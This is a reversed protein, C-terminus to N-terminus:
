REAQQPAGEAAPKANDAKPQDALFHSVPKFSSDLLLTTRHKLTEKLAELERLFIALEQAQEDQAFVEYYQAADAIGEARVQGARVDAFALITQRAKDADSRIAEAIAKGSAEANQARALREEKMRAFVKETVPEPLLMRRVGVQVVEVGRQDRDLQEQMQSAIQREVESLQLQAPDLNVLRDFTHRGVVSARSSRLMALLVDSAQQRSEHARHFELPDSIRWALYSNIIVSYGDATQQEELQDELLQVQTSYHYVQQIPPPLRFNFGPETLVGSQDNVRGFTAVVAAENYRVVFTFMYAILVGGILLGLLLILKNKM